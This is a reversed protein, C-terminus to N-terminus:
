NAKSFPQLKVEKTKPAQKTPPPPPAANAQAEKQKRAAKDDKAQKFLVGSSVVIAVLLMFEPLNQFSSLKWKKAVVRGAELTAKHKPDNWDKYYTYKDTGEMGSGAFVSFAIARTQDFAGMALKFYQEDEETTDSIKPPEEGEEETEEGEEDEDEFGERPKEVGDFFSPEFDEDNDLDLVPKELENEEITEINKIKAM